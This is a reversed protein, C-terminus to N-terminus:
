NVCWWLNMERRSRFSDYVSGCDLPQLRLDETRETGLEFDMPLLQLGVKEQKRYEKQLINLVMDELQYSWILFIIYSNRDSFHLSNLYAM